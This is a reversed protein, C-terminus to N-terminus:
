TSVAVAPPDVDRAPCGGIALLMALLLLETGSVKQAGREGHYWALLLAVCFGVGAAITIGRMVGPAWNFQAGILGIVQLLLWAGTGYALMWQVLKRQKLEA